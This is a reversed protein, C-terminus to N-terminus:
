EPFFSFDGFDSFMNEYKKYAKYRRQRYFLIDLLFLKGRPNNLGKKSAETECVVNM